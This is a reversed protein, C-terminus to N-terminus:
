TKCTMLYELHNQHISDLASGSDCVPPYRPFGAMPEGERGEGMLSYMNMLYKGITVLCQGILDNNSRM